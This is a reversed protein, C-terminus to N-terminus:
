PRGGLDLTALLVRASDDLPTVSRMELRNIVRGDDLDIAVYPVYGEAALVTGVSAIRGEVERRQEPPHSQPDLVRVRGLSM